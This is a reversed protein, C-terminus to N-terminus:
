FASGTAAAEVAREEFCGCWDTGKTTPWVTFVRGDPKTNIAPENRRCDGLPFPTGVFTSPRRQPVEGAKYRGQWWKCRECAPSTVTASM